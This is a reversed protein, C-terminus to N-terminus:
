AGGKVTSQRLLLLQGAQVGADALTKKDALELGSETFLSLRHQGQVHFRKKAEDLLTGVLEDGRYEFGEAKGNYTVKIDGGHRHDTVETM